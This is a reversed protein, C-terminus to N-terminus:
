SNFDNMVKIAMKVKDEKQNQLDKSLLVVLNLSLFTPFFILASM